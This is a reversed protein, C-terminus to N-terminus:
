AAAGYYSYVIVCVLNVADNSPLVTSTTTISLINAGIATGDPGANLLAIAGLATNVADELLAATAAEVVQSEYKLVTAAM